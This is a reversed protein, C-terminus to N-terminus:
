PRGHQAVSWSESSSRELPGTPLTKQFHATPGSIPNSTSPDLSVKKPPQNSGPRPACCAVSHSESSRRELPCTPLTKQCHAIPFSLPYSLRPNPSEEKPPQNSGPASNCCTHGTTSQSTTASPALRAGTHDHRHLVGAKGNPIKKETPWRSRRPLSPLEMHTLNQRPLGGAQYTPATRRLRRRLASLCLSPVVFRPQSNVPMPAKCKPCFNNPQCQPCVADPGASTGVPTKACKTCVQAACKECRWFPRHKAHNAGKKSREVQKCGVCPPYACNQCWMGATTAAHLPLSCQPCVKAAAQQLEAAKQACRRCVGTKSASDYKHFHSVSISKQCLDCHGVNGKAVNPRVLACKVCRARRLEKTRKRRQIEKPSFAALTKRKLKMGVDCKACALRETALCEQCFGLKPLKTVTCFACPVSPEEAGVPQAGPATQPQPKRSERCQSCM